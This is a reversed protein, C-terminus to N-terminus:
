CLPIKIKRGHMSWANEWYSEMQAEGFLAVLLLNDHPPSAFFDTKWKLIMHRLVKMIQIEMILILCFVSYQSNRLLQKLKENYKYLLLSTMTAEQSVCPLSFHSPSIYVTHVGAHVHTCTHVTYHPLPEYFAVMAEQLWCLLEFAVSVAFPAIWFQKKKTNISNGFM